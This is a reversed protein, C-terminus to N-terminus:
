RGAIALAQERITPDIMTKIDFSASLQGDKVLRDRMWEIKDMPIGIDPHVAGTKVADDFIYGPRPDDPKAGTTQRTLALTEERHSLAYRFAQMEAAMFGVAADRKKLARGTSIMCLRIYEPLIERASVLQHVGNKAAVPAYESSVVTAEVVGAVLAKFRDTDGGMNAFKVESAPIGNKALLAKALYDPHSFPTSIAITKGRLDQVSKIDDRVFIGHPLSQWHCGIVKVDVGKSAAVVSGTLAGDYSDIEGALLARLGVQDSKFKVIDLKVGQKEAFGNTVMMFIGADSKPEIIGHRWAKEQAAAPTALALLTALVASIRKM